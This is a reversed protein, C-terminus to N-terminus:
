VKVAELKKKRWYERMKESVIRRTEAKSRKHRVCPETLGNDGEFKLNPVNVSTEEKEGVPFGLASIPEKIVEELIPVSVVEEKQNLLRVIVKGDEVANPNRFLDAVVNGERDQIQFNSNFMVPLKM